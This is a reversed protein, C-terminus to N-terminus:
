PTPTPTIAPFRTALTPMINNTMRFYRADGPNSADPTGTLSCNTVNRWDTNRFGSGPIARSYVWNLFMDAAAEDRERIRVEAQQTPSANAPTLAIDFDYVRFANQQFDCPTIGPAFATSAAASGWGREGRTWDDGSTRLDPNVTDRSGWVISPDSPTSLADVVFGVPTGQEDAPNDIM